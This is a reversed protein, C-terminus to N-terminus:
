RGHPPPAATLSVRSALVWLVGYATSNEMEPVFANQAEPAIARSGIDMIPRPM